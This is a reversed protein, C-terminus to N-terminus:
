AKEADRRYERPLCCAAGKRGYVLLVMLFNGHGLEFSREPQLLGMLIFLAGTGIGHSLIQIVAGQMEEGQPVVGSM